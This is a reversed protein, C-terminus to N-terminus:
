VRSVCSPQMKIVHRCCYDCRQAESVQESDLQWLRVTGSAQLTAVVAGKASANADDEGISSVAQTSSTPVESLAVVQMQLCLM